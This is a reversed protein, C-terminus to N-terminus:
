KSSSPAAGGSSSTATDNVSTSSALPMPEPYMNRYKMPRSLTLIEGTAANIRAYGGSYWYEPAQPAVAVENTGGDKVMPRMIPSDYRINMNVNWILNGKEKELYLYWSSNAPIEYLTESNPQAYVPQNDPSKFDKNKIADTILQIAKNSDIKIDDPSLDKIGWKQKLVLTEKSSVFISYVEKKSSSVYTFQWQYQPYYPMVAVDPNSSQTPQEDSKNVGNQDSSGNSNTMRADGGLGTIVPKVIKNLTDLYTGSFGSTKAEEFDIVTYEEFPGVAPFYPMFSPMAMKSSGGIADASTAGVMPASAPASVSNNAVASEQGSAQTILSNYEAMRADSVKNFKLNSPQSIVTPNGTNNVDPTTPQGCATLLIVLAILSSSAKVKRSLM